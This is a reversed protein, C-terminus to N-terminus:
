DEQEDCMVQHREERLIPQEYGQKRFCVLHPGMWGVIPIRTTRKRKESMLFRFHIPIPFHRQLNIM